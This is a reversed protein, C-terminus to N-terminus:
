VQVDDKGSAEKTCSIAHDSIRKIENKVAATVNTIGTQDISTGASDLIKSIKPYRARLHVGIYDDGLGIEKKTKGLLEQVPKALRFVSKFIYKFVKKNGNSAGLVLPFGKVLSQHNGFAGLVRLSKHEEMDKSDIFHQFYDKNDGRKNLHVVESLIDPTATWNLLNPQFFEDIGCQNYWHILLVREHKSALWLFYPIHKLRDGLGGAGEDILLVKTNRFVEPDSRVLQHWEIYTSLWAPLDTSNFPVNEYNARLNRSTATDTVTDLLGSLLFVAASWACVALINQKM